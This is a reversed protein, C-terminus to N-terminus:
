SRLIGLHRPTHDPFVDADLPRGNFSALIEGAVDRYDNLVPLDRGQWLASEHLGQWDGHIGGRVRPGFALLVSGHGHDTGGTGNPRVTRGFETMVLTIVEREPEFTRHLAAVGAALDAIRNAARGEIGGQRAHTDWDDVDLFVADITAGARTLKALTEVRQTLSSAGRNGPGRERGRGLARGRRPQATDLARLQAAAALALRGAQAVPDDNSASAYTRELREREALPLRALSLRSPENLALARSGRLTLPLESTLALRSFLDSDSTPGLARAMWGDDRRRGLTGSEMFDQADFHSRTPDPSGAAHVIALQDREVLLRIPEFAPHLGFGKAFALTEGVALEGARIKQWERDGIPPVLHLGDAAGRLFIVALLPSGRSRLTSVDARAWVPYSLVGLTTTASNCLFDRRSLPRTM